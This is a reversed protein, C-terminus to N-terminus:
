PQPTATARNKVLAETALPDADLREILYSKIFNVEEPALGPDNRLMGEMMQRAAAKDGKGELILAPMEKAWQPLPKGVPQMHALTYAIKLAYDLDNLRHRALFAAQGLWRWKEGAPNQGTKYLYDVVHRIKDPHGRLSGFYYGAVYPVHESAPDLSHLLDFWNGLAAYDYDQLPTVQGGGDGLHQLSLAGSRFAFEPDGLAMMIAGAKSPVPPVGAWHAYFDRSGAWCALNCLLALGLFLNIRSKMDAARM